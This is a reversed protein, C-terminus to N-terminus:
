WREWGVEYNERAPQSEWLPNIRKVDIGTRQCQTNQLRPDRHPGMLLPSISQRVLNPVIFTAWSPEKRCNLLEFGFVCVEPWHGRSPNEEKDQNRNYQSDLTWGKWPLFRQWCASPSRLHRWRRIWSTVICGVYKLFFPALTAQGFLPSMLKFPAERLNLIQSSM